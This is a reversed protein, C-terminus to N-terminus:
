AAAELQSIWDSVNAEIRTDDIHARIDRTDSESYGIEFAGAPL